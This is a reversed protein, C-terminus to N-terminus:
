RTAKKWDRLSLVNGDLAEPDAEQAAWRFMPAVDTPDRGQAGNTLESSVQGPDVVGVPNDLEAAFQQAVAEALAKSVAYSGFGPKPERAIRGSPVVVRADAALHPVAERVTAFVGRGNVRLHEDFASYSEEALPTEGPVGHYVGANAFVADIGGDQSAARAATELLREVDYEDRVDARQTVAEGGAAEVDAAVSELASESRACVVVRAGAEGYERALAAGIGRSAGTIVVTEM